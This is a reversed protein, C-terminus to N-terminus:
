LVVWAVFAIVGLVFTAGLLMAADLLDDPEPENYHSM